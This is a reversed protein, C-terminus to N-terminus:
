LARLGRPPWDWDIPTGGAARIGDKVHIALDRLHFNCPGYEIWSHAVGVLPCQLDADTLGQAKFMARAAARDRGETIGRSM